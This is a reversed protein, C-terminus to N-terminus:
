GGRGQSKVMLKCQERRAWRQREVSGESGRGRKGKEERERLNGGKREQGVEKGEVTMLRNLETTYDKWRPRVDKIGKM